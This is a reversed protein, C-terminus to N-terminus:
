FYQSVHAYVPAGTRSTTWSRWEPNLVLTYDNIKGLLQNFISCNLFNEGYGDIM